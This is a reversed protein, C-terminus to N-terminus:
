REAIWRFGSDIRVQVENYGFWYPEPGSEAELVMLPPPPPPPPPGLRPGCSKPLMGPTEEQSGPCELGTPTVASTTKAEEAGEKEKELALLALFKLQFQLATKKAEQLDDDMQSIALTLKDLCLQLKTIPLPQMAMLKELVDTVQHILSRPNNHNNNSSSSSGDSSVESGDEEEDEEESNNSNNNNHNNSHNSEPFLGEEKEEGGEEEEATERKM